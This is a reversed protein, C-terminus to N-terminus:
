NKDYSSCPIEININSGKGLESEVRIEGGLMEVYSRAISLGLGSGEFSRTLSVEAQRFQKFIAEHNEKAIGIGTDKVSFKLTDSSKCIDLEVSGTKTFKIANEILISLISKLKIKDTYISEINPPLNNNLKFELGKNKAKLMFKKHLEIILESLKTVSNNVKVQGTQIKSIEVISNITNMFREASQSIFGIYKKKESSTVKVEDDQIIDLLGLIANFPTRIEHSINNLFATKLNDSEESQRKAIVLESNIQHLKDLQEEIKENKEHLLLEAQKRDTIDNMSILSCPEGLWQIASSKFEINRITRNKAFLTIENTTDSEIVFGFPFNLLENQSRVFLREAAPNVFIINGKNNVIVLGSITKEIISISKEASKIVEANRKEIMKRSRIREVSHLLMNAFYEESIYRKTIFDEAGLNISKLGLEEETNNTMVLVPVNLGYQFFRTLTELGKSEPLGLDLL